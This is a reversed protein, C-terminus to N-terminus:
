THAHIAVHPALHTSFGPEDSLRRGGSSQRHRLLLVCDSAIMSPRLIRRNRSQYNVNRVATRALITIIFGRTWERV